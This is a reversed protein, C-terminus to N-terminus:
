EHYLNFEAALHTVNPDDDDYKEFGIAYELDMPLLPIPPTRESDTQVIECYPIITNPDFGLETLIKGSMQRAYAPSADNSFVDIQVRSRFRKLNADWTGLRLFQASVFPYTPVQPRAGEPQWLITIGLATSATGCVARMRVNFSSVANQFAIDYGQLSM